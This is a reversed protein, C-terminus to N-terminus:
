RKFLAVKGTTGVRNTTPAYASQARSAEPPRIAADVEDILGAVHLEIQTHLVASEEEPLEVSCGEDIGTIDPGQAVIGILGTTLEPQIMEILLKSHGITKTKSEIEVVEDQTKVKGHLGDIGGIAVIVFVVGDQMRAKTAVELEM